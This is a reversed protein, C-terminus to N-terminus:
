LEDEPPALQVDEYLLDLPAQWDISTLDLTEGAIYTQLDWHRASLRRYRDCSVGDASLLVYEQLTSIQRYHTFKDGQDYAATSPSLVEVILCPYRILKVANQDRPDCSVMIDPYHYPGNTSVQVKVDAIFTRCGKGRLHTKLLAFLNGAVINHPITGGTMAFVEGNVYAYKTDQEAEWELYEQPSMPIFKPDAIM